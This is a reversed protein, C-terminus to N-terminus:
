RALLTMPLFGELALVMLQPQAISETIGADTFNADEALNITPVSNQVSSLDFTQQAEYADNSLVFPSNATAADEVM